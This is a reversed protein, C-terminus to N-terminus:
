FGLLSAVGSCFSSAASAVTNVLTGVGRVAANAVNKVVNRAGDYLAKAGQMVVGGITSGAIYGAANGVFGGIATGWPGIVSGLASGVIAGGKAAVAIGAVCAGTTQAMVELGEHVTLKGDAVQKAVKVNEIAVFAVNACVNGSGGKLQQIQPIM